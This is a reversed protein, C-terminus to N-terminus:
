TSKISRDDIPAAFALPATMLNWCCCCGCWTRKPTQWNKPAQSIGRMPICEANQGLRLDHSLSGCDHCTLCEIHNLAPWVIDGRDLTPSPKSTSLWIALDSTKNPRSLEIISVWFLCTILWWRGMFLHFYCTQLIVALDEPSLLGRPM